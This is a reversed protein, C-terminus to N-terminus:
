QGQNGAEEVSPAICLSTYDMSVWFMSLIFASFSWEKDANRSLPQTAALQQGVPLVYLLTKGSM